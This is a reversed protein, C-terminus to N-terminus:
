TDAIDRYLEPVRFTARESVVALDSCLSIQM